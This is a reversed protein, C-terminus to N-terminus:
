EADAQATRLRACALVRSSFVGREGRPRSRWLELIREARRKSMPVDAYKQRRASREAQLALIRKRERLAATSCPVAYLAYARLVLWDVSKSRQIMRDNVAEATLCKVQPSRLATALSAGKCGEWGDWEPRLNFNIATKM